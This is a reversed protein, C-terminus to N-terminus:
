EFIKDANNKLEIPINIDLKKAAILNLYLETKSPYEIQDNPLKEHNLIKSVITATQMGIAKQNPGLAALAGLYVQDTDSVFVPKKESTATKVISAFASLAMNDNGIYIADTVQALKLSVQPVDATRAITQSIINIGILAASKNLKNIIAVSNQDVPNYIVGLKKLNPILQKFLKLQPSLEVFNSVGAVKKNPLLLGAGKPDTVSSFVLYYNEQSQIYSTFAQSAITGVGVVVDPKLSNYRSAIQGALSVNAQASEIIIELNKKLEYGNNKLGEVIGLTTSNLAEHDITKLILVRKKSNKDQTDDSSIWTKLLCSLSQKTSSNACNNDLWRILVNNNSCGIVFIILL